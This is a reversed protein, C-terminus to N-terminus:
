KRRLCGANEGSPAANQDRGEGEPLGLFEEEDDMMQDTLTQNRGDGQVNGPQSFAEGLDVLFM